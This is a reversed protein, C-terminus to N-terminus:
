LLLSILPGFVFVFLHLTGQTHIHPAFPRLAPYIFTIHVPVFYVVFGGTSCMTQSKHLYLSLYM